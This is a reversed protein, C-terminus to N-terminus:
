RLILRDALLAPSLPPGVHNGQAIACGVRHLLDLQAESEVGKAVVVLDLSHLLEVTGTVITLQRPNGDLNAILSRDLKVFDLPFEGLASLPSEPGGFSDLTVRVGLERLRALERAAARIDSLFVSDTVELRLLPAPLGSDSLCSAVTEVLRSDFQRGSLNVSVALAQEGGRQQLWVAAQRCAEQLVWKGIPVILGTEEARRLFVAPRLVEHEPRNWRLLAEAGVLEGKPLDVEPQYVLELEGLELARHFEQEEPHGMLPPNLARCFRCRTVDRGPVQYAGKRGCSGCWVYDIKV